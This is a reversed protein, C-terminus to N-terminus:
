SATREQTTADLVPTKALERLLASRGRIWAEHMACQDVIPCPTGQLVCKDNITPGEVAEILSLMSIPAIDVALRYGGTPGRDSKVWDADVLPKMIQAIFSTTTNILPALDKGKVPARATALVRLAQLALDTKRTM